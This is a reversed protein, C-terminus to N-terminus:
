EPPVSGQAGGAGDRDPEAAALVELTATRAGPLDLPRDPAARSETRRGDGDVAPAGARHRQPCPACERLRGGEVADAAEEVAVRDRDCRAIKTISM